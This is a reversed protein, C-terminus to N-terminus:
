KDSLEIPNNKKRERYQANKIADNGITIGSRQLEAGMNNIYSDKASLYQKKTASAGNFLRDELMILGNEKSVNKFGSLEFTYYGKTDKMKLILGPLGFFKYPGEPISIDLSYWTKYRRGGYNVFAIGCNTSGINEKQSTLEWEFNIEEQYKIATRFLLDYFSVNKEPVNKVIWYSFASKPVNGMNLGALNKSKIVENRISDRKFTNESVFLSKNTGILLMFNEQQKSHIDTSDNQYTLIYDARYKLSDLTVDQSKFACSILVVVILFLKRM